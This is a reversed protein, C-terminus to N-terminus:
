HENEQRVSNIKSNIAYLFPSKFLKIVKAHEGILNFLKKTLTDCDCIIVVVSKFIFKCYIITLQLLIIILITQTEKTELM